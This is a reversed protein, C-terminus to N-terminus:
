ALTCLLSVAVRVIHVPQSLLLCGVVLLILFVLAGAGVAWIFKGGPARKASILAAIACGAALFALACPAVAGEGLTGRQVLISGALMLLLTTLLGAAAAPLLIGVPSRGENTKRMM